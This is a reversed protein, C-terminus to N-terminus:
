ADVELFSCLCDFFEGLNLRRGKQRLYVEDPPLLTCLHSSESMTHAYGIISSFIYDFGVTRIFDLYQGLKGVQTHPVKNFVCGLSRIRCSSGRRIGRSIVAAASLSSKFAHVSHELPVVVYDCLSIAMVVNKDAITGPLDVFVFDYLGESILSQLDTVAKEPPSYVIDFASKVGRFQMASKFYSDYSAMEDERISSVTHQPDSDLVLVKFGRVYALYSASIVTLTTKGAGGKQTYFSVIKTM